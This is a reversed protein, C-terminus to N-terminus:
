RILMRFDPTKGGHLKGSSSKLPRRVRNSCFRLCKADRPSLIIDRHARAYADSIQDIPEPTHTPVYAPVRAYAEAKQKLADVGVLPYLRLSKGFFRAAKEYDGARMYGKALDRSREAEGKNSIDGM